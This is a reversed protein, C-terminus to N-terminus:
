ISRPRTRRLATARPTSLTARSWPRRSSPTPAPQEVKTLRELANYTYIRSKNAEAISAINGRSEYTYAFTGLRQNVPSGGQGAANLGHAMSLLRGSRTPSAAATDYTM